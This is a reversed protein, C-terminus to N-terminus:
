VWLMADHGHSIISSGATVKANPGSSMLVRRTGELSPFFWYSKERNVRKGPELLDENTLQSRLPNVGLKKLYSWFVKTFIKFDWLLDDSLEVGPDTISALTLAGRFPLVRYLTFLGLWFRIVSRDGGRIRRRHNPNIIRPLGGKTTSVATGALRSNTLLRGSAARLLLLNAAKLYIALGRSGRARYMSNAFWAFSTVAKVWSLSHSGVIMPIAQKLRASLQSRRKVASQWIATASLVQKRTLHSM